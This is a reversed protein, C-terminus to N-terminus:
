IFHCFFFTFLIEEGKNCIHVVNFNSGTELVLVM